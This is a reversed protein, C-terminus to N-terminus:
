LLNVPDLNISWDSPVLKALELQHNRQKSKIILQWYYYKGRRSYFAPTPGIIEVPLKKDLLDNKLKKTAQEVGKLTTRRCTLQMLYSFPPFRFKQRESLSHNYFLDWDREIAAKVVISDPEYSQLLVQGKNHGRGVRGIVQYLLQFAREESSYDPLGLSTEAAIIGVLGLKPLDLGKALLQTGILIDVKGSLLSQYTKELREDPTNDSDFRQIKYEGFLRKVEEALAKTGISKYIIDPNHCEPCENPPTRHYGCIHCRVNHTDGHYVLPIDCNPCLLQWGCSNCLILRASGRRNLYIMAQKNSSLTAAIANILRDSLYPSKTFQKKDKLDIVEIPTKDQGAIARQKMELLAGRKNAVYYDTLSPTASGLIVKAKSLAGLTSAVRVAHYRPSQDQKYAPEHSEDLIILGPNQVPSFLASRPGIVVIPQTSELISRWIRKREAQGLRSHLVFVQNKLQKSVSTTLQSTLAIEPTLLIVSKGSQLTKKALEVYVRTKGSGTIGHLLITTSPNKPIDQLVRKQDKTLPAELELQAVEPSNEFVLDVSRRLTPKSPAFQRLAESLNVAYFESIWKALELAHFPLSTSSLLSRIPKTSFRPKNVEAVVFGTVMRSRLPITVVSMLALQEEFSYVLPADSRYRSDAVYVEYFKM